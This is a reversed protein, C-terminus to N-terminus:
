QLEKQITLLQTQLESEAALSDEFSTLISALKKTWLVVPHQQDLEGATKVIAFMDEETVLGDQMLDWTLEELIEGKDTSMAIAQALKYYPATSLIEKAEKYLQYKAEKVKFDALYLEDQVNQLAAAVKEKVALLNLKPDLASIEIHATKYQAEEQKLEKDTQDFGDWTAKAKDKFHHKLGSYGLGALGGLGAGLARGAINPAMGMVKPGVLGGTVGGVLPPFMDWDKMEASKERWSLIENPTFSYANVSATKVPSDFMSSADAIDFYINKDEQTNFLHQNVEHNATECIRKTQEENFGNQAAFKKISTNLPIKDSIYATSAKKAFYEIDFEHKFDDEEPSSLFKALKQLSM